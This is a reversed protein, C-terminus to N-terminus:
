GKEQPNVALWDTVALARAQRGFEVHGSIDVGALIGEGRQDDAPRIAAVQFVLVVPPHRADIAVYVQIRCRFDVYEVKEGLGFKLWGRVISDQSDPGLDIIVALRAGIAVPSAVRCPCYTVSQGTM